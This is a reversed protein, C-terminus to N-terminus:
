KDADKTSDYDIQVRGDPHMFGIQYCDPSSSQYYGGQAFQPLAACEIEITWPEIDKKEEEHKPILIGNKNEYTM